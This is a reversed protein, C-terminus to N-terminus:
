PAPRVEEHGQADIGGAPCSVNGQPLVGELLFREIHRRVCASHRFGTHGEGKYDVVVANPGLLRATEETWAYPTAPDGRVGVLLIPPVHEPKLASTPDVPAPWGQCYAIESLEGPGFIKSARLFEPRLADLQRQLARPDGGVGRDPYDACSVAAWAAGENDEEPEASELLGSPDQDRVLKGLGRELTPWDWPSYLNNEIALALDAGSFRGGGPVDLPKADLREVLAETRAVARVPDVGEYVCGKKGSCWGLFADYALQQGRATALQQDALPDSLTDVGDLVFRGTRGPFQAAYVAGLRTGYSWGLYHLRPEGLAQRLVDMDRAVNVTGVYPLVPGSHARCSRVAAETARLLAAADMSETKRVPLAGACSIPASGGVGRPDFAVLDYSAALARYQGARAPDKLRTGLTSVSPFGPGGYDLVLSGLRRQGTAPHRTVALDVTGKAPDAYDLPVNLRGCKMSAEFDAPCPGWHIRQGYFRVLEPDHPDPPTSGTTGPGLATVILAAAACLLPARHM